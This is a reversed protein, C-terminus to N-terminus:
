TSRRRALPDALTRRPTLVTAQNDSLTSITAPAGGFTIRTTAITSGFNGGSIVVADGGDASGNNPLVSSIFIARDPDVCNYLFGGVKTVTRAGATGSNLVVSVDVREPVSNNALTRAPTRVQIATNSGSEITAPNGGFLVRTNQSNPNGFRGGFITVVDGGRCSGRDPNITSIFPGDAPVPAFEVNLNAAGCDFTAKVHSTGSSGSALTVDAVGGSVVKSVSGLGSELFFGFDTTFFVSSGDPIAQGSRRATARIIVASGALPTVSTAQLAITVNCTGGAGEPERVATEPVAQVPRRTAPAVTSSLPWVRM